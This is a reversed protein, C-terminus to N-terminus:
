EDTNIEPSYKEPIVGYLLRISDVYSSDLPPPLPGYLDPDNVIDACGAYTTFGLAVLMASLAKRTIKQLTM